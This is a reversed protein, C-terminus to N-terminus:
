RICFIVDLLSVIWQEAAGKFLFKWWSEIKVNATSPGFIHCSDMRGGQAVEFSTALLEDEFTVTLRTLETLIYQAAAWLPTEGGRDSRTIFPRYGRGKVVLLFQKLCSISTTASRGLYFWIIKRSYADICAYIEFGYPALKAYGDLSWLFNPGPVQFNRHHYRLQGKRRGDVQEPYRLRYENWALTRPISVQSKLRAYNYFWNRGLSKHMNTEKSRQEFWEIFDQEAEAREEPNRFRRKM